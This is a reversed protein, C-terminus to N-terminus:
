PERYGLVRADLRGRAPENKFTVWVRRHSRHPVFPLEAESRETESGITLTVEIQVDEATTDGTNRVELPLAFGGATNEATGRTISLSPPRNGGTAAGYVLVGVVGAILMGSAAFVIWELTNKTPMM